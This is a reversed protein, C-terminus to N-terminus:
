VPRRVAKARLFMRHFWKSIRCLKRKWRPMSVYAEFQRAAQNLDDMVPLRREDNAPLADRIGQFFTGTLLAGAYFLYAIQAEPKVKEWGSEDLCQQMNWDLERHCFNIFRCYAGAAEGLDDLTVGREKLIKHLGEMPADELRDAVTALLSPWLYAIDRSPAYRVEGV